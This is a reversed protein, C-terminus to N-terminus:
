DEPRPYFLNEGSGWVEGEDRVVDTFVFNDFNIGHLCHLEFTSNPDSVVEFNSKKFGLHKGPTETEEGSKTWWTLVLVYCDGQEFCDIIRECTEGELTSHVLCRLVNDRAM